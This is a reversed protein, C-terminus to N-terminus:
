AKSWSSRKVTHERRILEVLAEPCVVTDGDSEGDLRTIIHRDTTSHDFRVPDSPFIYKWGVVCLRWARVGYNM